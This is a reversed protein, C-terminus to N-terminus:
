CNSNQHSSKKGQLLCAAAQEFSVSDPIKLVHLVSVVTYEAYSGSGIYAVRDGVLFEEAGEGVAAVVGAGERYYVHSIFVRDFHLNPSGALFLPFPCRIPAM